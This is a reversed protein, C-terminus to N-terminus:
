KRLTFVGNEQTLLGAVTLTPIVYGVVWKSEKPNSKGGHQAYMADAQKILTEKDLKSDKQLIAVVSEIRTMKDKAPPPLEQKWVKKQTNTVVKAAKKVKKKAMFEGKKNNNKVSVLKNV